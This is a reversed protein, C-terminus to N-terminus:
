SYPLLLGIVLAYFLDGEVDIQVSYSVGGLGLPFWLLSVMGSLDVSLYSM